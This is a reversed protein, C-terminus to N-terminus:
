SIIIIKILKLLNDQAKGFKIMGGWLMFIPFLSSVLITIVVFSIVINEAIEDEDGAFYNYVGM